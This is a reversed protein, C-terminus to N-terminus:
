QFGLVENVFGNRFVGNPDTAQALERFRPMEPYVRSLEQHGLPVHKGWHFRADVIRHLARGLWSCFRYYRDRNDPGFYTFVSCSFYAQSGSAMGLMDDEPHVYRFFFPYHQTYTGRHSQLEDYLEQNKLAQVLPGTMEVDLGAFVSTAYRLLEIAQDLKREPIFVEMEEHQFLDHAMTLIDHSPGINTKGTLALKPALHMLGRSASNGLALAGKVLVHFLIDTGLFNNAAFFAGFIKEGSTLPRQIHARRQYALFDWRYPFYAFQSLPMREYERLVEALSGRTVLTEEVLYKPVTELDVSLIVGLTGLACRAARLEEGCEYKYIKARKNRPDYAAVRIGKVFHSLSPGGSGHTATSIAGSISQKSIAGQVPFTHGTTAHLVDLARQLSTGGGLRAILKDERPFTEVSDFCSMDLMISRCVPAGSWSHLAGVPRIREKKHFNLIELVDEETEPRYCRAKWVENGGFNTLELRPHARSREEPLLRGTLKPIVTKSFRMSQSREPRGEFEEHPLSKFNTDWPNVQVDQPM